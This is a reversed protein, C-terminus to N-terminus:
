NQIMMEKHKKIVKFKLKQEMSIYKLLFTEVTTNYFQHIDWGLRRIENTNKMNNFMQEPTVDKSTVLQYQEPTIEFSYCMSMNWGKNMTQLKCKFEKYIHVRPDKRIKAMLHTIVDAKGEILQCVYLENTYALHGSIQNRTDTM